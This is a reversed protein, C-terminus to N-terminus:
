KLCKYRIKTMHCQWLNRRFWCQCRLHHYPTTNLVCDANINISKFCFNQKAQQADRSFNSLQINILQLFRM